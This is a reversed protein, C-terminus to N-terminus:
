ALALNKMKNEINAWDTADMPDGHIMKSLVGISKEKFGFMKAVMECFKIESLYVKGDVKMVRIMDALIEIKLNFDSPIDFDLRDGKKALEENTLQNLEQESIDNLKALDKIFQKETQEFKNDVLALQIMIRFKELKKM